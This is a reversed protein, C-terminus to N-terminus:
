LNSLGLIFGTNVPAIFAILSGTNVPQVVMPHFRHECTRYICDLFRHQVVMPHFRHECTRNSRDLFRHECTLPHYLVEMSDGVAVVVGELDHYARQGTAM